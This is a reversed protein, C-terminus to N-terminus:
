RIYPHLILVAPVRNFDAEFMNPAALQTLIVTPGAIICTEHGSVIGNTLHVTENTKGESDTLTMTFDTAFAKDSAFWLDLGKDDTLREGNAYLVDAKYRNSLSEALDLCRKNLPAANAHSAVSSAFAFTLAFIKNKM